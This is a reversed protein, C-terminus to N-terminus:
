IRFPFGPPSPGNSRVIIALGIALGGRVWVTVNMAKAIPLKLLQLRSLKLQHEVHLTRLQSNSGLVSARHM